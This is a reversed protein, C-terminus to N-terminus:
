RSISTAIRQLEDSSLDGVLAYHLGDDSWALLTTAGEDVSEMSLGGAQVTVPRYGTMDVAAGRANEFLSVTRIGDSYLLHVIRVGNENALDAGVAAFGEPLYRPAKASFGAEAMVRQPESPVGRSPGVTSAYDTPISFTSPAIANTYNVSDFHMQFIVSGDSAYLERRLMLNTKEDIWIRATTAGTYRNVLAVVDVPRGAVVEDPDTVPRYNQVLLHVDRSWGYHVGFSDNQTVVVKRDRVDISYITDSRSITSDGYLSRPAVYWRRTLDPALHDVRFISAQSAGHAGITLLEVQATFSIHRPADVAAHLLSMGTEHSEREAAGPAMMALALLLVPVRRIM